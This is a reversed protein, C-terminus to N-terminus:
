SNAFALCGSRQVPEVLSQSNGSLTQSLGSREFSSDFGLSLLADYSCHFKNPIAVVLKVFVTLHIGILNSVLIKQRKSRHQIFHLKAKQIFIFRHVINSVSIVLFGLSSRLFRDLNYFLDQFQDGANQRAIGQLIIFEVYPHFHVSM